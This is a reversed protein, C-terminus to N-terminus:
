KGSSGERRYHKRKAARKRAADKLARTNQRKTQLVRMVETSGRLTTKNLSLLDGKLADLATEILPKKPISITQQSSYPEPLKFFDEPMKPALSPPASYPEPKLPTPHKTTAVPHQLLTNLGLKLLLGLTATKGVQRAQAVPDSALHLTKGDYTPWSGTLASTGFLVNAANTGNITTM